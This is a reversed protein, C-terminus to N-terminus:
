LLAVVQVEFYYCNLYLVDLLYRVTRSHFNLRSMRKNMQLYLLMQCDLPFKMLLRGLVTQDALEVLDVKDKLVSNRKQQRQRFGRGMVMNVTLVLGVVSM